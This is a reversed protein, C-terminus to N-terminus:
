QTSDGSWPQRSPEVMVADDFRLFTVGDRYDEHYTLSEGMLLRFIHECSDAGARISMPAGGGFRPNIELYKTGGGTKIGQITAQGVIGLETVMRRADDILERDKVVRGKSIEGSRTALRLRPVATVVRGNFDCFVDISYEDGEVYEQVMPNPVYALFFELERASNVKFANISSSGGLPKVFLPYDFDAHPLEPQAILRPAGFGNALLFQHTRIKDRCVSISAASSVLVRADTRTEIEERQRALPLLETDITPVILDIGESNCVDLLSDLYGPETVRPLLKASDAFYLAPADSAADAAVITARVGLRASAAKFCRILEVRRGASTVLLNISRQIQAVTM